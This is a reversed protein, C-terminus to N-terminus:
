QLCFKFIHRSTQSKVMMVYFGSPVAGGGIDPNGGKKRYTQKKLDFSEWFKGLNEGIKVLNGKFKEWITRGLPGVTAASLQLGGGRDLGGGGRWM